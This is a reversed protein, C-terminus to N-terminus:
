KKAAIVVLSANIQRLEDTQKDLIRELTVTQEKQGAELRDIGKQLHPIHNTRVNNLWLAGKIVFGLGMLGLGVGLSIILEAVLGTM